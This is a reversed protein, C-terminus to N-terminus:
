VEETYETRVHIQLLQWGARVRDDGATVQWLAPGSDAITLAPCLCKVMKRVFLETYERGRSQEPCQSHVLLQDLTPVIAQRPFDRLRLWYFFIIQSAFCLPRWDVSIMRM